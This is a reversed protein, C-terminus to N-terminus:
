ERAEDLKTIWEAPNTKIKAVCDSCCVRFLRGALVFDQKPDIADGTVLCTKLPYDALQKATAAKDLEGLYKAANDEFEGICGACCFRVLRNNYVYDVADGMSGLEEGTVPCTTLPYFPLQDKVIDADVEALFKGADAEFGDICGACCFRIERGKYNHVVADGMSGLPEHTVPCYDLYYPDGTTAASAPTAKGHDHASHDYADKALAFRAGTLMAFAVAILLLAQRNFNM